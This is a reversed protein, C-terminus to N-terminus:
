ICLIVFPTTLCIESCTNWYHFIVYSNLSSFSFVRHLTWTFKHLKFSIILCYFCIFIVMSKLKILALYDHLNSLILDMTFYWVVLLTKPVFLALYSHPNSTMNFDFMDWVHKLTQFIVLIKNISISNYTHKFALIPYSTLFPIYLAM